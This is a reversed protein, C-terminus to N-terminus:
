ANTHKAKLSRVKNNEEFLTEQQALHRLWNSLSRNDKRAAEMWKDRERITARIMIFAVKNERKM